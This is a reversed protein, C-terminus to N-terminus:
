NLRDFVNSKYGKSQAILIYDSDDSMKHLIEKVGDVIKCNSQETFIETIKVEGIKSYSDLYAITTFNFSGKLIESKKIQMIDLNQGDRFGQSSGGKITLYKPIGRRNLTGLNKVFVRAPFYKDLFEKVPEASNDLAANIAERKSAKGILKETAGRCTATAFIKGTEVSIVKITFAIEGGFGGSLLHPTAVNSINGTFIYEVGLMKGTEILHSESVDKWFSYKQEDERQHLQIRLLKEMDLRDVMIFRKSQEVATQVREALMIPFDYTDQEYEFSTSFPLVAVTTSYDPTNKHRLQQAVRELEMRISDEQNKTPQGLIAIPIACCALFVLTLKM